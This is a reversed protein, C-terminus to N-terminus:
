ARPRTLSFRDMALARLRAPVAIPPGGPRASGAAELVLGAVLEGILPGFKFGHGSFGTAVTVPGHRGIVFDGDVTSTYTCTQAVASDADVGPLWERAYERLADLEAKDVNAADEARDQPRVVPGVGHHGIKVGEPGALGYVGIRSSADAESATAHHIFSPWWTTTPTFLAPQEQTIRLTPLGPVVGDLLGATWGGAAVVVHRARLTGTPTHVRVDADGILEVRDVASGALLQAGSAEAAGVLARVAAEADLRGGRPHHLAHGDVVLGPWRRRVQEPGLPEVDEGTSRLTAELAALMGRDGHDIVGTLTLLEAGAERELECWLPLTAQALGVYLPDPYGLRFIRARGHSAGWPNAPQFQELLTVRAGRRALSWASAAGALGAGIVAVETDTV